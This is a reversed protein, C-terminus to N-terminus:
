AVRRALAPYVLVLGDADLELDATFGAFRGRDVFRVTSGAEDHRVHEYRQASAFLELDPVSVWAMLYDQAGEHEHLGLRRVPMLNTLPSFGLDCDRAGRLTEVDGGPPALDVEGVQEATCTWAGAGAHTLEVRRSWGSGATRVELRRTVFGGTADLSYEARYPLPDVGLQTGTARIGDETLEVSAAEARWEDTGAWMVLRTPM